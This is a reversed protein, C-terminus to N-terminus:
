IARSGRKEMYYKKSRLKSRRVSEAHACINCYFRGRTTSRADMTVSCVKCKWVVSQLSNSPMQRCRRCFRYKFVRTSQRDLEYLTLPKKCVINQCFREMSHDIM